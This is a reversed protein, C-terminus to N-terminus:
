GQFSSLRLRGQIWGTTKFVPDTPQYDLAKVVLGNHIKLTLNKKGSIYIKQEMNYYM